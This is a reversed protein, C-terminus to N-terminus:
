TGTDKTYDPRATQRIAPILELLQTIEFGILLSCREAVPGEARKDLDEQVLTLVRVTDSLRSAIESESATTVPM